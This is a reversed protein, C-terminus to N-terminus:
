SSVVASVLLAYLLWQWNFRESLSLHWVFVGIIVWKLWETLWASISVSNWMNLAFIITLLCIAILTTGPSIKLISKQYYIRNITWGALYIVLLIQGIDLPLSIASETAILTRLPALVLLAILLIHPTHITMVLLVVACISLLVVEIPLWIIAIGSIVALIVLPLLALNQYSALKNPTM